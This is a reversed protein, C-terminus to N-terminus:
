ELTKSFLTIVSTPTNPGENAKYLLLDGAQPDFWLDAHWFMKKFGTLTVKVKLTEREVGNILLKEFSQKTAVMDHLDLKKPHIISFKIDRCNSLIFPKFSFDFEQLWLDNGVKYRKESREGNEHKQAILTPGERHISYEDSNHKSKHTFSQTVRDPTTIIKTNGNLGEGDIHLLDEKLELKWTTKSERGEVDKHYVYTVEGRAISVFFLLFFLIKHM